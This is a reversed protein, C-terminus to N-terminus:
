FLNKSRFIKFYSTESINGYIYRNKPFLSLYEEPYKEPIELVFFLYYNQNIKAIM